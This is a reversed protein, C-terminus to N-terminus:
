SLNSSYNDSYMFNSVSSSDLISSSSDEISPHDLRTKTPAKKIQKLHAAVTKEQNSYGPIDFRRSINNRQRRPIIKTKHYLALAQVYDM